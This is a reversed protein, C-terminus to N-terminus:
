SSMASAQLFQQARNLELSASREGGYIKRDAPTLAPVQNLFGPGFMVLINPNM